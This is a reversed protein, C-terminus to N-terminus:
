EFGMVKLLHSLEQETLYKAEGTTLDTLLNESLEYEEKQGDASTFIISYKVSGKTDSVPSNNEMEPAIGEFDDQADETIPDWEEYYLLSIVTDFIENVERNNQEITYCRAPENNLSIEVSRYPEEMGLTDFGEDKETNQAMSEQLTFSQERPVNLWILSVVAGICLPLCVSLVLSKRKKREKIRKESRNIIEAKLEEFNRM